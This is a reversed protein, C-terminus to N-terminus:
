FYHSGLMFPQEMEAGKEPRDNDLSSLYDFDISFSPFIWSKQVKNSLSNSVIEARLLVLTIM